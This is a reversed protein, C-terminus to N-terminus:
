PLLPRSCRIPTQHAKLYTRVDLELFAEGIEGTYQAFGNKEYFSRAGSHTTSTEVSVAGRRASETIARHLLRTGIGRGRFERRVYFATIFANPAGDIIDEHIVFHVLGIVDVSDVAVLVEKNDVARKISPTRGTQPAWSLWDLLLAKLQPIDRISAHRVQIERM